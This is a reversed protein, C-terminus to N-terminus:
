RCLRLREAVREVALLRGAFDLSREHSVGCNSVEGFVREVWEGSRALLTAQGCGIQERRSEFYAGLLEGASAVLWPVVNVGRAALKDKATATVASWEAEVIVPAAVTSWNNGHIENPGSAVVLVDVEARLLEAHTIRHAEAYGFLVGHREVQACIDSFILGDSRYAAGSADSVAALTLGESVLRACLARGLAGLGQVAFKAERPLQRLKPLVRRLRRQM